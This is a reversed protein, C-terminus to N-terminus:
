SQEQFNLVTDDSSRTFEPDIVNMNSTVFRAVISARTSSSLRFLRIHGLFYVNTAKLLVSSWKAESSPGGWRSINRLSRLIYLPVDASHFEAVMLM